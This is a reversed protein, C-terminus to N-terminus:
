KGTDIFAVVSFFYPFTLSEFMAKEGPRIPRSLNTNTFGLTMPNSPEFSYAVSGPSEELYIGLRDGPQVRPCNYALLGEIYVQFSYIDHISSNLM